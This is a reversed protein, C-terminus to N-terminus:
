AYWSCYLPRGKYRGGAGHKFTIYEQGATGVQVRHQTVPSDELFRDRCPSKYAAMFGIEESMTAGIPRLWVYLASIKVVQYFDINTQDYGWSNYVVDGVAFTHPVQRKAARERVQAAYTTLGNFHAAIAQELRAESPFIYHWDAQARAGGYALASIKGDRRTIYVVGVTAGAPHCRVEADAPIYRAATGQHAYNSM